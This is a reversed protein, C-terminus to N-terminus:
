LKVRDLVCWVLIVIHIFNTIYKCSAALGKALDIQSIGRKINTLEEQCYLM